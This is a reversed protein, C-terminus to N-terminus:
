RGRRARRRAHLEADAALEGAGDPPERRGSPGAEAAEGGAPEGSASAARRPFPWRPALELLQEARLTALAGGTLALGLSGLLELWFGAKPVAKANFDVTAVNCSGGLTGVENAHPLDVVLFILLSAVGAAAVARAAPRSGAALAVVMAVVAFVALVIQAYHHRDAAQLLCDRTPGSELRFTTMLESAFLCASAALCSFPLLREPRSVSM